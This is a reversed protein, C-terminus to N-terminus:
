KWITKWGAALREVVVGIAASRVGALLATSGIGRERLSFDDALVEVSANLLDALRGARASARAALVANQALFVTVPHDLRRLQLAIDRVRELDRREYADESAILLYGQM